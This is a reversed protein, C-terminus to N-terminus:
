SCGHGQGTEELGAEMQWTFQPQFIEAGLSARTVAAEEAQEQPLLQLNMVAEHRPRELVDSPLPYSAQSSPSAGPM